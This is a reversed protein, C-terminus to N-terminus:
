GLFTGIGMFALSIVGATVFAIPVGRFSKPVEGLELRERIGAMLLLAILFGLGAFFGYLVSGALTYEEMINLFAVGLIACNTTILPLYIGLAEHMVPYYKKMAIELIQVLSAIVFIFLIIELFEANFFELIVRYIVWTLASALTMVLTVAAGMGLAPKLRGSVGFFPCMGLFMILVVNNVFMASLIIYFADM